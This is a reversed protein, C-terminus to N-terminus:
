MWARWCFGVYNCLNLLISTYLLFFIYNYFLHWLELRLNVVLALTSLPAPWSHLRPIVNWAGSLTLFHSPIFGWVELHAGVKFTLTRIFEWIKLPCNCPDFNMPNFLKKYRQFDRPVLIDLIPECSGNQHKFCLNHGFSPDPILNDIQSRVV